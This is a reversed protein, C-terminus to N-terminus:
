LPEQILLQVIVCTSALCELQLSLLTILQEVVHLSQVDIYLSNHKPRLQLLLLQVVSIQGHQVLM